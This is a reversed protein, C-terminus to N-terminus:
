IAVVGTGSSTRDSFFVYSTFPGSVNLIGGVSFEGAGDLIFANLNASGAVEFPHGNLRSFTGSSALSQIQVSAATAIRVSTGPLSVDDSAGPFPPCGTVSTGTNFNNERNGTSGCCSFWEDTGCSGDWSIQAAHIPSSLSLLLLAGAPLVRMTWTPKM